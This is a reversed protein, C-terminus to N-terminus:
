SSIKNGFSNVNWCFLSCMATVIPFRVLRQIISRPLNDITVILMLWCPLFKSTQSLKAIMKCIIQRRLQLPVNLAYVLGLSKTCCYVRLRNRPDGNWTTLNGNVIFLAWDIGCCNRTVTMNDRLEESMDVSIPARLWYNLSRPDWVSTHSLERFFITAAM